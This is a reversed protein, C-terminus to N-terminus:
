AGGKVAQQLSPLLQAIQEKAKRIADIKTQHAMSMEAVFRAFSGVAEIKVDMPSSVLPAWMQGRYSITPNIDFAITGTAQVWLGWAGKVKMFRLVSGSRLGVEFELKGELSGLCKEFDQIANSLSTAEEGFQTALTRARILQQTLTTPTESM